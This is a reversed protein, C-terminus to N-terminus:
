PSVKRSSAPEFGPKASELLARSDSFLSAANTDGMIVGVITARQGDKTVYRAAFLLCSGAHDTTGTKIGVVGDAGLLENTNQIIGIGPIQAQPQAVIEAIVPNKLAAIGVAVLESPTSVTAPSFGSADAVVTQSLGMHRLMDQAYTTYAKTSGFTREVLTDAINNASAILMMQMAQYQTLVMGEYVPLVSGGKAAHARYDAVDDATLTYTPGTQGLGLPQKKMIALATIVKAMSATPRPEESNSSQALLGDELSGIAAQGTAPWALQVNEPLEKTQSSAAEVHNRMQIRVRHSFLISCLAVLVVVVVVAISPDLKKSDVRKRSMGYLLLGLLGGSTNMIVDTIDAVGIAFVFQVVEAAVSFLLVCALKQWFTAKKLNVGLLLGFPIFILFNDLM